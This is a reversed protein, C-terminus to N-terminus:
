PTPPTSPSPPVVTASGGGEFVYKAEIDPDELNVNLIRQAKRINDIATTRLEEQAAKVDIQRHLHKFQEMNSHAGALCEIYLNGTGVIIEENERISRQLLTKLKKELEPALREFEVKPLEKKLCCVYESFEDLSVNGLPDPDSIGYEGAAFEVYPNIMFDTLANTEYMPLIMYNGMFGLPSSLDAVEALPTTQIDEPKPPPKVNPGVSADVINDSHFEPRVNGFNYVTSFLEPKLNLDPIPVDRLRLFRQDEPEHAWIAQMYYIINQYIHTSLREIQTVEGLHTSLRDNFESRMTALTSQADVLRNRYTDAEQREREWADRAASERIKSANDEGENGGGLIGGLLGGGSVVDSVKGWIGDNDDSNQATREIQRELAAYRLGSLSRRDALDETIKEVLSQQDLLARKMQNLTERESVLTTSVYVLAPKFSDDLLVRNLIWDHQILWVSDIESAKPMEQAVLVVSQLRHLKENIRYRRQLEYLLFTVSIENNPNKLEGSETYESEFTSETEVEMKTERKREEAAKIVSERMNKKVDQSHREANATFTSTSSGGASMAAEPGYTFTATATNTFSTKGTAKALIEAEARSKNETSFKSHSLNSELEKELRRQKKKEKKEYKQSQMPGLPITSVLDGVQYSVPTWKQRYTVMLGFNVSRQTASAAFHKFPYANSRATRLRNIIEHSPRFPQVRERDIILQRAHSVIRDSESKLVRIQELLAITKRNYNSPGSTGGFVLNTLMNAPLSALDTIDNVRDKIFGWVGGGSDGESEAPDPPALATILEDRRSLIEGAVIDLQTRINFSLARYEELSIRVHSAVAVPVESITLIYATYMHYIFQMNWTGQATDIGSEVIRDYAAEVDKLIRDDIAEQWVSEFALQLSSFDHFSPVDAPGPRLTIGGIAKAVDEPKLRGELQENPDIFSVTHEPATQPQMLAAIAKKSDFSVNKGTLDGIVEPDESDTADETTTKKNEFCAEAPLKSRCPDTILNTREISAPKKLPTGLAGELEEQTLKGIVSGPAEKGLRKLIEPSLQIRTKRRVKSIKAGNADKEVEKLKKLEDHQAKRSKSSIDDEKAVFRPNKLDSKSTNSLEKRIGPAISENFFRRQRESKKIKEVAIKTTAKAVIEDSKENTEIAELRREVLPRTKNVAKYLGKSKLLESPVEVLFVEQFAAHNRVESEFIIRSERSLKPKESCLVVIQINLDHISLQKLQSESISVVFRGNTATIVSSLRLTTKGIHFIEVSLGSIGQETGEVLVTGTVVMKQPVSKTEIKASTQKEM